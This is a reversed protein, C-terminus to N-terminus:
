AQVEALPALQKLLSYTSVDPEPPGDVSDEPLAALSDGLPLKPLGGLTFAEFTKGLAAPEGLASVLLEALDSRSIRGTALDGCSLVFRGPPQAENLGCSRVVCYPVGSERLATEGELKTGLIDSPNLNVIPINASAAFKSRRAPSWTPRSVAASSLLVFKPTM